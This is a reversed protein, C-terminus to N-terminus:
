FLPQALLGFLIGLWGSRTGRTAQSPTATAREHGQTGRHPEAGEGQDEQPMRGAVQPDDAQCGGGRDHVGVGRPCAAGGTSASKQFM